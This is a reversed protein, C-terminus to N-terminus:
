FLIATFIALCDSDVDIIMLRPPVTRSKFFYVFLIITSIPIERVLIKFDISFSWRAPQLFIAIIELLLIISGSLEIILM